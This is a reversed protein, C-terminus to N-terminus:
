LIHFVLSTDLDTMVQRREDVVQLNKPHQNQQERRGKKTFCLEKVPLLGQWPLNRCAVHALIYRCREFSIAVFSQCLWIFTALNGVVNHLRSLVGVRSM